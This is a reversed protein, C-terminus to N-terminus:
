NDYNKFQGSVYITTSSIAQKRLESMEVLQPDLRYQMFAEISPFQLYHIEGISSSSSENANPEFAALLKGEYKEMIKIAKTEFEHFAAPDHVELLAIIQIM